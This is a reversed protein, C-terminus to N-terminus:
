ERLISTCSPAPPCVFTKQKKKAFFFAKSGEKGSDGHAAVGDEELQLVAADDDQALVFGGVATGLKEVAQACHDVADAVAASARKGPAARATAEPAGAGSSAAKEAAACDAPM